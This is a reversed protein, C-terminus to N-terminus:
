TEMKGSIAHAAAPHLACVPVLELPGPGASEPLPAVPFLPRSAVVEPVASAPEPLPPDIPVPLEDDPLPPGCSAPATDSLSLTSAAIGVGSLSEPCPGHVAPVKCGPVVVKIIWLPVMIRDYM